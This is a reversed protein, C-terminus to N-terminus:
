WYEGQSRLINVGKCAMGEDDTWKFGCTLGIRTDRPSNQEHDM